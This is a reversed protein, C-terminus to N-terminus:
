HNLNNRHRKLATRLTLALGFGTLPMVFYYFMDSMPQLYDHENAKFILYTTYAAYYGLFLFGEWREVKFRTFFIPLCVFATAFMVPTDFNLISPAVPLGEGSALGSLGLVALINFINSGVVNGVAIDKEGKFAAIISTAVEPLSTGAAVITLGIVVDSLGWLKATLIAGDVFYKSGVVLAVLGGVLYAVSAAVDIKSRKGGYEVEFEDPKSNNQIKETKRSERILWVTYVVFAVIFMISEIFSIVGNLSLIWLLASVGIMVPVDIRILQRAVTLPTILASVGLIFLVNFINSGVVNGLALDPQNNLASMVSVSLEPASTGAAVITLGIVLPSIGMKRAVKSAGKVFLDAGWTLIVLGGLLKFLIEIM